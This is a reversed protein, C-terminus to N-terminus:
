FEMDLIGGSLQILQIEIIKAAYKATNYNTAANLLNLQAQRFEVSTIQGVRFLEETRQFNLRNTSLNQAEAQLVFLANQYSEWANAVDRELQQLIQEKQIVQSEINIQTNDRQM